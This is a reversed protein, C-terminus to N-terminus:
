PSGGTKACNPEEWSEQCASRASKSRTAACASTSLPRNLRKPFLNWLEAVRTPGAPAENELTVTQITRWPSSTGLNTVAMGPSLEHGKCQEIGDHEVAVKRFV